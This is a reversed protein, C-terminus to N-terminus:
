RSGDASTPSYVRVTKRGLGGESRSNTSRARRASARATTSRARGGAASSRAVAGGGSGSGAATRRSISSSASHARITDAKSASCPRPPSSSGASAGGGRRVLRGDEVARVLVELRRRRRRQGRGGGGREVRHQQDDRADQEDARGPQQPEGGVDAQDEPDRRDRAAHRHQNGSARGTRRRRPRRRPRRLGNTTPRATAAPEVGRDTIAQVRADFDEAFITLMAHGAHDPRVEIFLYRNEAIEWVAEVDNLLFSPEAGLLKEYWAVAREYDTVPLGAFLDLAM